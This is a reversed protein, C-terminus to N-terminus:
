EGDLHIDHHTDLVSLAGFRELLSKVGVHHNLYNGTRVNNLITMMSTVDPKGLSSVVHDASKCPTQNFTVNNAKKAASNNAADGTMNNRRKNNVSQTSKSSVIKLDSENVHKSKIEISGLVERLEKHVIEHSISSSLLCNLDFANFFNESFRLSFELYDVPFM